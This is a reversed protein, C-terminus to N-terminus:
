LLGLFCVVVLMTLKLGGRGLFSCTPFPGEASSQGQTDVEATEELHNGLEAQTWRADVTDRRTRHSHALDLIM